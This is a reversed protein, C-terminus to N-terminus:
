IVVESYSFSAPDPTFPVVAMGLLQQVSWGRSFLSDTPPQQDQLGARLADRRAALPSGVFNTAFSAPVTADLSAQFARRDRDGAAAFWTAIDSARQGPGAPGIAYQGTAALVEVIARIVSQSQASLGPGVAAIEDAQAIKAYPAVLLGLATAGARSLLFRRSIGAPEVEGPSNGNGQEV